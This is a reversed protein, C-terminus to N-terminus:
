GLVCRASRWGNYVKVGRGEECFDWVGRKRSLGRSICIRKPECVTNFRRKVGHLTRRSGGRFLFRTRMDTLNQVVAGPRIGISVIRRGQSLTITWKRRNCGHSKYNVQTWGPCCLYDLHTHNADTVVEKHYKEYVLRCPFDGIWRNEPSSPKVQCRWVM